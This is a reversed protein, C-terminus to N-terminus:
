EVYQIKYIKREYIYIILKCKCNIHFSTSYVNQRQAKVPHQLKKEVSFIIPMFFM